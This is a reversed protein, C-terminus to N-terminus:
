VTVPFTFQCLWQSFLISAEWLLLICSGYSGAISSKPIFGLFDGNIQLSVHIGINLAMNNIIVLIHFCGLHADLSSHTFFVQYPMQYFNIVLLEWWPVIPNAADQSCQSMPEIGPGACHTLFGVNSCSCTLNYVYSLDSGQGLFEMHWPAALFLFFFTLMWEHCFDRVFTLM